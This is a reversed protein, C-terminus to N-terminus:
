TVDCVYCKQPSAIINKSWGAAQIAPTIFERYTDAQSYENATEHGSKSM